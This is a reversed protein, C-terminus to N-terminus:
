DLKLPKDPFNQAIAVSGISLGLLIFMAYRLVRTPKLM